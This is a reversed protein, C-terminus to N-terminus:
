SNQHGPIFDLSCICILARTKSIVQVGVALPRRPAERLRFPFAWARGCRKRRADRREARDRRRIGSLLHKRGNM